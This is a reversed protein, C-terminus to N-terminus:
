GDGQLEVQWPTRFRPRVRVEGLFAVLRQAAAEISAALPDADVHDFLRWAVRGDDRQAWAGVVQGDQWVTPGINGNRDFLPGPFEAAEGLYWHREKWGMPTADLAPLLSVTVDRSGPGAPPQEDGPLVFAEAVGDGSPPAVDVGVAQVAALARTTATKTWGTWWQVDVLTAPGFTALYRAVIMAEAEGAALAGDDHGHAAGDALWDDTRAWTWSTSAITGGPRARVIAGTTALWFLVRTSM